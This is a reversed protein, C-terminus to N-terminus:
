LAILGSAAGVQCNRVSSERSNGSLYCGLLPKMSDPLRADCTKVVILRMCNMADLTRRKSLANRNKIETKNDVVLEHASSPPTLKQNGPIYPLKAATGPCGPADNM